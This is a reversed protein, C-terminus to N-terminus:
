RIGTSMLMATLPKVMMLLNIDGRILDRNLFREM